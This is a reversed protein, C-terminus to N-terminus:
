VNFHTDQKKKFIGLSQGSKVSDILTYHSEIVHYHKRQFYDHLFLVGDDKLLPFIFKASEPRARGDILVADFETNFKTASQIYEKFDKYRSSNELEEWSTSIIRNKGSTDSHRAVFQMETNPLKQKQIKDFWEKNHEISYYKKVSKSFKLTSGGCGYELMSHEPKLYSIIKQIEKESMWPKM